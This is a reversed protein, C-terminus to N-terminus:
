PVVAFGEARAAAALRADHCCFTIRADDGRLRIASALHLADFGRLPHREVLDGAARVVPDTMQVLNLREWEDNFAAVTAAYLRPKLLRERRMRAFVARAEAYAINSTATGSAAQVARRVSETRADEVYLSVLASTDLYLMASPAAPDPARGRM